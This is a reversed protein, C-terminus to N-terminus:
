LVTRIFAEILLSFSVNYLSLQSPLIIVVPSKTGNSFLVQEVEPYM